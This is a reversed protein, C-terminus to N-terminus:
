HRVFVMKDTHRQESIIKSHKFEINTIPDTDAPQQM